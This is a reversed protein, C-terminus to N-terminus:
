EDDESLDSRSSGSNTCSNGRCTGCADLCDMGQKKCSCSQSGGDSECNCRVIELLSAHAAPPDTRVPLTKWGSTELWDAEPPLLAVGRWQQVQHYVRLSHYVAATSTPPLCELQVLSTRTKIKQCFRSYRLSDLIEESWSSERIIQEVEYDDVKPQKYFKSIITAVTSRFTVDNRNNVTIIRENICCQVPTEGTGKLCEQMTRVLVSMTFQEKDNGVLVETKKLFAESKVTDTPRGEAPKSDTDNGHKKPIQKGTRFNVNCAQHYM